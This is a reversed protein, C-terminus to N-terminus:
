VRRSRCRTQLWVIRGAYGRQLSARRATPESPLKPPFVGRFEVTTKYLLATRVFERPREM